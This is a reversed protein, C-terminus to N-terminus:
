SRELNGGKIRSFNRERRLYIHIVEGSLWQLAIMAALMSRIMNEDSILFHNTDNRWFALVVFASVVVWSFLRWGILFSYGDTIGLKNRANRLIPVIKQTMFSLEGNVPEVPPM